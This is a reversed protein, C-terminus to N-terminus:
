RRPLKMARIDAVIDAVVPRENPRKWALAATCQLDGALPVIVVGARAYHQETSESLLAVGAGASVLELTEELSGSSVTGLPTVDLIQPHRFANWAADPSRPVVWHRDGLEDPRVEERGALPDTVPLAIARRDTTVVLQELDEATLPPWIIALDTTDSALGCSPDDFDFRRLEVPRGLRQQAIRVIQGTVSSAAEGMFGLTLGHPEDDLLIGELEDAVHVLQEARSLVRLGRETLSVGGLERQFLKTGAHAELRAVAASVTPQSVQLLRAAEGFSGQGAVAVFARVSQLTM